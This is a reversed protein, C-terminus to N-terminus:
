AHESVNSREAAERLLDILTKPLPGGDLAEQYTRHRAHRVEDEYFACIHAHWEEFFEDCDRCYNKRVKNACCSCERTPISKLEAFQEPTLLM